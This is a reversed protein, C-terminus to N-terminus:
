ARGFVSILHAASRLAARGRGAAIKAHAVYLRGFAAVGVLLIQRRVLTQIADEAVAVEQEPQL